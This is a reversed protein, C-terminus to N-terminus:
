RVFKSMATPENRLGFEMVAIVAVSQAAVLVLLMMVVAASRRREPPVGSRWVLWGAVITVIEFLGVLIPYAYLRLGTPGHGPWLTKYGTIFDLASHSISVITVLLMESWSGGFLRWGAGLILGAIATAPISHSWV